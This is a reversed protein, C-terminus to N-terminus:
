CHGENMSSINGMFNAFILVLVFFQLLKVVAVAQAVQAVENGDASITGTPM